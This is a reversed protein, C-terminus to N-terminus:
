FNCIFRRNISQVFFRSITEARGKKREKLDKSTETIIHTNTASIVQAPSVSLTIFHSDQDRCVFLSSFQFILKNLSKLYLKTLYMRFVFAVGDLAFFFLRANQYLTIDCRALDSRKPKESKWNGELLTSAFGHWRM